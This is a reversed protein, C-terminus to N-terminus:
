ATTKARTRGSATVPPLKDLSREIRRLARTLMEASRFTHGLLMAGQLAAILDIARGESRAGWGLARFQAEAWKVYIGMLKVGAQALPSEPGLKELEQCLSGHPCGYALVDDLWKRPGRVLSVLCERPGMSQEWGSFLETLTAAHAEVIAQCLAEKTKFYYYVNGLPVGALAAVHALTTREFGQQHLLQQGAAM